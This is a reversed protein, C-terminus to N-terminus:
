AADGELLKTVRVHATLLDQALGQKLLHLKSLLSEEHALREDITSLVQGLRDQEALDPLGLSYERLEERNIKPFGSRMSVSEAFRSFDQGLIV